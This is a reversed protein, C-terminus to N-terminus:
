EHIKEYGFLKFDKDYIENVKQRLKKSWKINIFKSLYPKGYEKPIDKIELQTQLQVNLHEILDFFKDELRFIKANETLFKYQPLFHNNDFHNNKEYQNLSDLVYDEFSKIKFLKGINKLTLRRISLVNSYNYVYKSQIRKYPNRISMISFDIKLNLKKCIIEIEPGTLHTSNTSHCMEIFKTSTFIGYGYRSLLKTISSGGCKPPHIQLINKKGLFLPM